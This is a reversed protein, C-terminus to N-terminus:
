DAFYARLDGITAKHVVGGREVAIWDTDLLDPSEIYVVIESLPARYHTLGRQFVMQDTIEPSSM